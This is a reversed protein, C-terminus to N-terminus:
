PKVGAMGSGHDRRLAEMEEKDSAWSWAARDDLPLGRGEEALTLCRQLLM